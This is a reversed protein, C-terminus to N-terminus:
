ASVGRYLMAPMKGHDAVDSDLADPEEDDDGLPLRMHRGLGQDDDGVNGFMRNLFTHHEAEHEQLISEGAEKEEGEDEEEEDDDDDDDDDEDRPAYRRLGDKRRRKTRILTDQQLEERWATIDCALFNDIDLQCRRCVFMSLQGNQILDKEEAFKTALHWRALLRLVEDDNKAPAGANLKSAMLRMDHKQSETPPAM